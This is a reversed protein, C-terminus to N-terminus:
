DGAGLPGQICIVPANIPVVLCHCVFLNQLTAKDNVLLLEVSSIINVHEVNFLYETETTFLSPFDSKKKGCGFSYLLAKVLPSLSM